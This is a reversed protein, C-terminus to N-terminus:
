DTSLINSGCKSCVTMVSYIKNDVCIKKVLNNYPLVDSSDFIKLEDILTELNDFDKDIIANQKAISILEKVKDLEVYKKSM